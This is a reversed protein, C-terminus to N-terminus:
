KSILQLTQISNETWFVRFIFECKIMEGYLHIANQKYSSSILKTWLVSSIVVDM